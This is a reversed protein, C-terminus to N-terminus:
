IEILFYGLVSICLSFAGTIGTYFLIKSTSNTQTTYYMVGTITTLGLLGLVLLFLTYIGRYEGGLSNIIESWNINMLNVREILISDWM